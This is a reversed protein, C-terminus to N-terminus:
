SRSRHRGVPRLVLRKAAETREGNLDRAATAPIHIEVTQHGVTAHWTTNVGTM